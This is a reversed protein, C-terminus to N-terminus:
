YLNVLDSINVIVFDFESSIARSWLNSVTGSGRIRFMLAAIIAFTRSSNVWTDMENWCLSPILKTGLLEATSWKVRCYASYSRTWISVMAVADGHQDFRDLILDPYSIDPVRVSPFKSRVIMEHRGAIVVSLYPLPRSVLRSELGRENFYPFAASPSICKDKRCFRCPPHLLPM